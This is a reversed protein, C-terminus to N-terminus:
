YKKAKFPPAKGRKGEAIPSTKGKSAKGAKKM